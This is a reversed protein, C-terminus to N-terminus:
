NKVCDNASRVQALQSSLIVGKGLDVNLTETYVAICQGYASLSSGSTEKILEVKSDHIFGYTMLSDSYIQDLTNLKCGGVAIIIHKLEPPTKELGLIRLEAGVQGGLQTVHRQDPPLSAGLRTVCRLGHSSVTATTQIVEKKAASFAPLSILLALASFYKM